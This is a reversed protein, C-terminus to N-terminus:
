SLFYGHLGLRRRAATHQFTAGGKQNAVVIALRRRAATHQFVCVLSVLASGGALRRRAATHQFGCLNNAGNKVTGAAKPRSHTSVTVCVRPTAGVAWGGEPPQTNFSLSRSVHNDKQGLRRRAATHQFRAYAHGFNKHHELRRRAATHQFKNRYRSKAWNPALRRRAATHQFKKQSTRYSRSLVLRRRAATHQFMAHAIPRTGSLSWGGEPPQTNFCVVHSTPSPQKDLRRRAATHQFKPTCLPM